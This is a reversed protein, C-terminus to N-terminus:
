MSTMQTTQVVGSCVSNTLNSRNAIRIVDGLRQFMNFMRAANLGCYLTLLWARAWGWADATHNWETVGIKLGPHPSTERIMAALTRLGEEGARTYPEYFHPCIFDLDAALEALIRPSPYSGLLVLDPYRERIARAYAALVQEYAAGEQENGIQWYRVAFPERHGMAARIRGYPSDAPGNCYEIEDLVQAVTTSNANVCILPEAGVLECFDLFEHLGVDHEERNGWPQNVFTLRRERPGIGTEWQYYILSTGGFRLCGPKMARVAAVVDPRWGRQHDEPLLSVKDLWFTGARSAGIALMAHADSADPVLSGAVRQWAETVGQLPLTAYARFFAGYSQGVLVTLEGGLAADGRVYAEFALPQGATVAIDRQAIGAVFPQEGVQRVEVRASRSGVFPREGDMVMQATSRTM